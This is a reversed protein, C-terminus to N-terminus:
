GNANDSVDPSQIFLQPADLLHCNGMGGSVKVTPATVSSVIGASGLGYSVIQGIREPREADSLALAQKLVENYAELQRASEKGIVEVHGALLVKQDEASLVRTPDGKNNLIRRMSTITSM